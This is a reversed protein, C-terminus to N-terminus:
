APKRGDVLWDHEYGVVAPSAVDVGAQQLKISNGRTVCGIETLPIGCQQSVATLRQLKDVPVTLCLEYDDGGTLAAAVRKATSFKRSAESLPLATTEITAGVEGSAHLLQGLDAMLGDSIDISASAVDRLLIGLEVRPSPRDLCALLYGHDQRSPIESQTLSELALAADGVTGSVVVRDGVKAGARTLAKTRPVSGAATVSICLPGRTTDGGVLAVEYRMALAFFGDSFCRLWDEDASSLTLNLLAWMPQAGMAALDSLNVALAKHGIDYPAQNARFHVGEVLTDSVVVLEQDSKLPELIAGDDGIGLRVGRHPGTRNFFREIVDFENLSEDPKGTM